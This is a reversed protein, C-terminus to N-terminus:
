SVVSDFYFAADASVVKIDYAMDGEVRQSNNLHRMPFRDIRAGFKNGFTNWSFTYGASPMLLSPRPAAYLLLAGKGFVYDLTTTDNEKNTVGVAEGVMVKQVGLVRAIMEATLSEATTYKFRDKLDPHNKLADFGEPGVLLINPKVLCSKQVTRIGDQVQTYPDSTGYADWKDGADPTEENAWVGAKFYANAFDTERKILMARTVFETADRYPDLPNDTNGAIDAPVDHRFSQQKCNYSETGQKWGSGKSEEAGERQHAIARAFAEKDYVFYSDSKKDVPVNPFVKDAIFEKDDQIYAVSINTLPRNIHVQNNTPQSM